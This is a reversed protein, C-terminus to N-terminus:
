TTSNLRFPPSIRAEDGSLVGSVSYTQGGASAGIASVFIFILLYVYRM